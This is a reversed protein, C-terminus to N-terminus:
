AQVARRPRKALFRAPVGGWIEWAPIDRTAVAGAALVAGEGLTVGPLVTANTLVVAYESLVTVKKTARQLHAPATASMSPADVENSGSIVKGGSAVASYNELVTLGGGIGIHAFSAVHVGRGIQMGRGIELKVFSDIRSGEGIGLLSRDGVIVTPQFIQFKPKLLEDLNGQDELFQVVDAHHDRGVEHSM